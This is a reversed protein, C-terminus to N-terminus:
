PGPQVLTSLRVRCRQSQSSSPSAAPGAGIRWSRAAPGSHPPGQRAQPPRDPRHRPSSTGTGKSHEVRRGRRLAPHQRPLRFTVGPTLGTYCCEPQLQAGPQPPTCALFAARLPLPSLLFASTEVSRVPTFFVPIQLRQRGSRSRRSSPQTCRPSHIKRGPNGSGSCWSGAAPQLFSASASCSAM